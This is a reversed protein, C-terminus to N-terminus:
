YEGALFEEQLRGEEQGFWYGHHQVEDPAIRALWSIGAGGTYQNDMAYVPDAMATDLDVFTAGRALYADLVDDLWEANLPNVHVLVTHTVEEETSWRAMDRAADVAEVMHQVYRQGIREQLAADGQADLWAFALVWDSTAVTIPVNRYGREALSRATADQLEATSGHNLYTYRFWTPPQPLRAALVEHCHDVDALWAELGVEDLRVHGFTHNGVVHGAKHWAEVTHEGEPMRDCNFFVSAKVGRESLHGLLTENLSTVEQASPVPDSRHRFQMPADDLSLHLRVGEWPLPEGASASLSLLLLIM